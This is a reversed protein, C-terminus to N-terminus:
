VGVFRSADQVQLEGSILKPLLTHRLQTLSRSQQANSVLQDFLPAIAIDFKAMSEPSALAVRADTLHKRQIHGMTTAKDAAIARFSQLHRRTAFFYFWKPVVDSTVKFLHQNLAGRGGNWVEVELSGSWSFLVDGDDVIYEPKIKTSAKDASNTNGARLQSIKIVPLFESESEPPFKQLALGNLYKAISDLSRMDWGEPIEGSESDTLRDPFSDYLRAPLGPLSQGRQWRGELKARVPEFDVFWSMFLARTIAELTENQKHLLEIKDDLMGLIHAIAEQKAYEPFTITLRELMENNLSARTSMTSMSNVATRFESSRFFYRAYGPAILERKPRLRKTFGNFTAGPIDTLAVSSMGLEDMTESTRTLFVDGRMVSCRVREQETSQVLETLEKPVASNYFVDKFSLFPHGSGFESRPKSLGSSFDYIEALSLTQWENAM